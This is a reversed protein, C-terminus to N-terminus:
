GWELRRFKIGLGIILIFPVLDQFFDDTGNGICSSKLEPLLLEGLIGLIGFTIVTNSLQKSQLKFLM